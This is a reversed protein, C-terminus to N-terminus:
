HTQYCSARLDVHEDIYAPILGVLKETAKECSPIDKFPEIVETDYVQLHIGPYSVIAEIHMAVNGTPDTEICVGTHTVRMNEFNNLSVIELANSVATHAKECLAKTTFNGLSQVRLDRHFDDGPTTFGLTVAAFAILKSM